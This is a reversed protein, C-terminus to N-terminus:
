EGDNAEQPKDYMKRLIEQRHIELIGLLEVNTITGDVNISSELTDDDKFEAIYVVKRM